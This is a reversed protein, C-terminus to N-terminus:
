GADEAQERSGHDGTGTEGNQEGGTVFSSPHIIRDFYYRNGTAADTVFQIKEGTQEDRIEWGKIEPDVIVPIGFLSGYGGTTIPHNATEDSTLKDGYAAMFVERSEVAVQWRPRQDYTKARELARLMEDKDFAQPPVPFKALTANITKQISEMMPDVSGTLKFNVYGRRIPDREQRAKEDLATLAAGNAMYRIWTKASALRGINRDLEELAAKHDTSSWEASFTTNIGWVISWDETESEKTGSIWAGGPGHIAATLM